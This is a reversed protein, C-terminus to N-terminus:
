ARAAYLDIVAIAGDAFTVGTLSGVTLVVEDGDQAGVSAVDFANVGGAGDAPNVWHIVVSDITEGTLSNLWLPIISLDHGDYAGVVFREYKGNYEPSRFTQTTVTAGDTVPVAFAGTNKDKSFFHVDNGSEVARYGTVRSDTVSNFAAVFSAAADAATSDGTTDVAVNGTAVSAPTGHFEFTVGNFVFLEEDPPVGSFAATASNVGFGVFDQSSGAGASLLDALVQGILTDKRGKERYLQQISRSM